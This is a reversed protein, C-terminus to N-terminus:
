LVTQPYPLMGSEIAAEAIVSDREAPSMARYSIQGIRDAEDITEVDALGVALLARHDGAMRKYAAERVATAGCKACAFRIDGEPTYM